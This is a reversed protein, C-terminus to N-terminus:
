KQIKIEVGGVWGTCEPGKLVVGVPKNGERAM